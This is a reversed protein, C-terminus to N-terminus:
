AIAPLAPIKIQHLFHILQKGFLPPSHVRFLGAAPQKQDSAPVPCFQTLFPVDATEVTQSVLKPLRESTFQLTLFINTSKCCPVADFQQNSTAHHSHEYAEDGCCSGPAAKYIEAYLSVRQQNSSTCTHHFISLGTIGFLFVALLFLNGIRKATDMM